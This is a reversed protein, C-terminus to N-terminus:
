ARPCRARSRRPRHRAGPAPARRRGQTSAGPPTSFSLVSDAPTGFTVDTFGLELAPTQTDARSWVQLRLPTSTKADVAVVIRGVLTTQSKPTVVLQYADRGAVTTQADLTVTSFLKAMRRGGPPRGRRADAPRGHGPPRGGRGAHRPRRVPRHRGADLSYHVVADDTSSYTWAQPGDQVVSYESVDGLLAVRSREAGDTWVRMTSSGGLLSSRTPAASTAQVPAVPLGLRATYVVTGSLPQQPAAAVQAALQEPTITPLGASDASALLPPAAFAIGVAVAVVVPVAWRARTSLTRRPTSTQQETMAGSHAM